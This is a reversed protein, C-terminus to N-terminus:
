KEYRIKMKVETDSIHSVSNLSMDEFNEKNNKIWEKDTKSENSFLRKLPIGDEGKNYFTKSKDPDNNREVM